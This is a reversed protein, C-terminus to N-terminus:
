PTHAHLVMGRSAFKLVAVVHQHDGHAAVAHGGFHGARVQRRHEVELGHLVPQQQPLNGAELVHAMHRHHAAAVDAHLHGLRKQVQALGDRDDLRPLPQEGRKFRLKGLQGRLLQLFVAHAHQHTVAHLRDALLAVPAHHARASLVDGAVQHHHGHAHHRRRAEQAACTDAHGFVARNQHVPLHAGRQFVHVRRAVAGHDVVPQHLLVVEDRQARHGVLATADRAAVHGPRM